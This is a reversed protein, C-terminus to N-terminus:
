TIQEKQPVVCRVLMGGEARRSIGVTGGIIGARYNMIELGFGHFGGKMNSRVISAPNFGIGNDSVELVIDNNQAM